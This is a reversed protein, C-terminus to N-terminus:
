GQWPPVQYLQSGPLPLPIAGKTIMLILLNLLFLISMRAISSSHTFGYLESGPTFGYLQSQVQYKYLALKGCVHAWLSIGLCPQLRSTQMLFAWSVMSLGPSLAELVPTTPSSPFSLCPRFVLFKVAKNFYCGGAQRSIM